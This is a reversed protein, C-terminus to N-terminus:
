RNNEWNGTGADTDYGVLNRLVSNLIEVVKMKLGSILFSGAYGFWTREEIPGDKIPISAIAYRILLGLNPPNNCISNFQSNFDNFMERELNINRKDQNNMVKTVLEHVLTNKNAELEDRKDPNQTDSIIADIVMDACKNDDWECKMGIRFMGGRRSRKRNMRSRKKFILPRYKTKRMNKKVKRGGRKKTLKSNRKFKM